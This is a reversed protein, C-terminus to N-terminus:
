YYFYVSDEKKQLEKFFMKKIDHKFTNINSGLFSLANHGYSTNRHPLQLRCNSRRTNHGHNFPQYLESTYAPSMNNFFKFINACVCQEFREKIPWNIERFEKFVQMTKLKLSFRMCKNQCIQIKEVFCKNLNPYWAACSYDFHPQILANCLLRRLSFSLSKRKRYLFKLRGNITGLVKTAM